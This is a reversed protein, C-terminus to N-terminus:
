LRLLPAKSAPCSGASLLAHYGLLGNELVFFDDEKQLKEQIKLPLPDYVSHAFGYFMADPMAQTLTKLRTTCHATKSDFFRGTLAGLQCGLALDPYLASVAPLLPPLGASALLAKQLPPFLSFWRFCYPSHLAPDDRKTLDFSSSFISSNKHIFASLLCQAILKQTAAPTTKLVSLAEQFESTSLQTLAAGLKIKFFDNMVLSQSSFSNKNSRSQQRAQLAVLICIPNLLAPTLWIQQACLLDLLDSGNRLPAGCLQIFSLQDAPLLSAYLPQPGTGFADICADLPLPEGLDAMMQAFALVRQSSQPTAPHEAKFFHNLLNSLHNM